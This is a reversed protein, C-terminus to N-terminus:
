IRSHENNRLADGNFFEDIWEIIIEFLRQQTVLPTFLHDAEPIAKFQLLGEDVLANTDSSVMQRLYLDGTEGGSGVMLLRLRRKRFNGLVTSLWRVNERTEDDPHYIAKGLAGIRM